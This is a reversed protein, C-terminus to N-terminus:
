QSVSLGRSLPLHNKAESFFVFLGSVRIDAGVCMIWTTSLLGKSTARSLRFIQELILRSPFDRQQAGSTAPAENGVAHPLLLLAVQLDGGPSPSSLSLLLFPPTHPFPLIGAVSTRM